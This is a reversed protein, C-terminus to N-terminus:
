GQAQVDGTRLHRRRDRRRTPRAGALWAVVGAILAAVGSFTGEEVSGTAVAVVVGAVVAVVLVLALLAQWGGSPSGLEDVADATSEVTVSVDALTPVMGNTNNSSTVGLSYAESLLGGTTSNVTADGVRATLPSAWPLNIMYGQFEPARLVGKVAEECARQVEDPTMTDVEQMTDGREDYEWHWPEPLSGGATAWWPQYWGYPAGNSRLWDHRPAGFGGLNAFDVASGYTWEGHISQGVPITTLGIDIMHQQAARDRYCSWGSSPVLDGLGAGQMAARVRAYSAATVHPATHASGDGNSGPLGALATGPAQGNNANVALVM